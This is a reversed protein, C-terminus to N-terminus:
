AILVIAACRSPLLRRGLQNPVPPCVRGHCARRHRHRHGLSVSSCRARGRGSALITNRGPRDDAARAQWSLDVEELVQFATVLARSAVGPIARFSPATDGPDLAANAEAGLPSGASQSQRGRLARLDWCTDPAPCKGSQVITLTPRM